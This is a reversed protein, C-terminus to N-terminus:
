LGYVIQLVPTLCLRDSCVQFLYCFAMGLRNLCVSFICDYGIEEFTCKFIYSWTLTCTCMDPCIIDFCLLSYITVAGWVGISM